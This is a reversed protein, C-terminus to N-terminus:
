STEKMMIVSLMGPNNEKEMLLHKVMQAADGNPNRGQRKVQLGPEDLDWQVGTRSPPDPLNAVRTYLSIVEKVQVPLQRYQPYFLSTDPHTPHNHDLCSSIM